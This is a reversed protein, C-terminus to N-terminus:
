VMVPEGIEPTPVEETYFAGGFDSVKLVHFHAIGHSGDIASERDVIVIKIKSGVLEQLQGSLSLAVLAKIKMERQAYSEWLYHVYSIHFPADFLYVVVEHPKLEHLFCISLAHESLTQPNSLWENMLLMRTNITNEIKRLPTLENSLLKGNESKWFQRIYSNAELKRFFASLASIAHLWISRM